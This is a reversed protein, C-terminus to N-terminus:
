LQHGILPRFGANNHRGCNQLAERLGLQWAAALFLPCCVFSGTVESAKVYSFPYTEDECKRRKEQAGPETRRVSM